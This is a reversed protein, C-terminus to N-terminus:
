SSTVTAGESAGLRPALTRPHPRKGDFSIPLSVLRVGSAELDPSLMDVAAFQELGVLERVDNVPACPVGAASLGTLWHARPRTEIVADIQEEGAGQQM